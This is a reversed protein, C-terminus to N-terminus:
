LRYKVMKEQPQGYSAPDLYLGKENPPKEREVAIRHREAYPDRRVGTVLWSVKQNPVGGAIRFRNQAIEDKIYLNPSSGGIPTLQYHFDKNFAEFWDPLEVLATGDEGLTVTGTYINLMESSEVGSHCLYKNEPDLPHDVIFAQASENIMGIVSVDGVFLGASGETSVGVVGTGSFSVGRVGENRESYGYVGSSDASTGYVGASTVSGGYVGNNNISEGLVGYSYESSGRVGTSSTSIGTVGPGFQSIGSVGTGLTSRGSIGISPASGFVGISAGSTGIIGTGSVSSGSVGFSTESSGSVGIGSYSYGVVGNSSISTGYVGFGTDANGEIANSSESYGLVGM